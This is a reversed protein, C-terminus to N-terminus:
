TDGANSGPSSVCGEGSARARSLASLKTSSYRNESPEAQAIVFFALANSQRNRDNSLSDALAIALQFAVVVPLQSVRFLRRFIPWRPRKLARVASDQILQLGTAALGVSGTFDVIRFGSAAIQSNLGECTWRWYDNPDPHYIWIGHTSLILHGGPRLVRYAEDLYSRPDDVHELVSNSLAIDYSGDVACTKGSPSFFSDAEDNGPLDVGHYTTGSSELLSRYPQRGCGLDIIRTKEGQHVYEAFVREIWSAGQRLVYWRPHWLRPRVRSVAQERDSAYRLEAM